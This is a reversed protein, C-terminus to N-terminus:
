NEKILKIGLQDIMKQHLEATIKDHMTQPSSVINEIVLQTEKPFYKEYEAEPCDICNLPHDDDWEGLDTEDISIHRLHIDYPGYEITDALNYKNFGGNPDVIYAQIKFLKAM